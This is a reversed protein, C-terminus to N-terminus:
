RFRRVVPDGQRSRKDALQIRQSNTLNGRRNLLEEIQAEAVQLARLRMKLAEYNPVIGPKSSVRPGLLGKKKMSELAWAISPRMLQKVREHEINYFDPELFDKNKAVPRAQSKDLVARFYVNLEYEGKYKPVDVVKGSSDVLLALIDASALWIDRRSLGTEEEVERQATMFLSSDGSEVQGGPANLFGNHHGLLVHLNPSTVVMFASTKKLVFNM